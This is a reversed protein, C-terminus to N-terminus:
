TSDGSRVQVSEPYSLIAIALIQVLRMIPITEVDVECQFSIDSGYVETGTRLTAEAITPCSLSSLKLEYNSM